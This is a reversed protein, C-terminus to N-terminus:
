TQVAATRVAERAADRAADRYRKPAIGVTRKFANSFASESTYGVSLALTALPTDKERLDREAIRMRWNQLYTLPPVGAVTRFHLAFTTRSMASARALEELQWPRGPDNHMLRLAPALREDALARLWGPPFSEADSLYARLVQVFMLQALQDAAFTAGARASSMERQLEDLLRSLAGAEASGSRVHIVPPLAKVLLDEGARSVDIHGGVSVVEEGGGLALMPEGSARFLTTAERPRLAPDSTLVFPNGGAFVAVDGASLRIPEAAGDLVLWYQGRVVATVKLRHPRAFRMSWAGGATFGRSIACRADMLALTDSLPDTAM